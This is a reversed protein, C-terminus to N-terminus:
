TLGELSEPNFYTRSTLLSVQYHKGSSGIMLYSIIILSPENDEYQVLYSMKVNPSIQIEKLRESFDGGRPVSRILEDLNISKFHDLVQCYYEDKPGYHYEGFLGIFAIPKNVSVSDKALDFSFVFRRHKEEKKSYHSSLYELLKEYCDDDEDEFIFEEDKQRASVGQRQTQRQVKLLHFWNM